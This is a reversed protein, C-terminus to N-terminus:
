QRSTPSQQNAVVEAADVTENALAPSAALAPGRRSFPLVMASLIAVVLLDLPILYWPWDPFLDLLSASPPRDMIWLYNTGLALNVFFVVVAYLHLGAICKWMSKWTPRYGELYVVWLGAVVLLGHGVLTNLFRVHPFAFDSEPTIVAQVAGAIGFFYMLAYFRQDRTALAWISLWSMISCMHLPLQRGVSWTGNVLHWLHYEINIGLLALVLAWRAIARTRDTGLAAVRLLVYGLAATMAMAILHGNGFLVFEYPLPDQSFYRLVFLPSHKSSLTPWAM